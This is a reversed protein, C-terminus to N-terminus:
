RGTLLPISRKGIVADLALHSVYGAALGSTLGALFSWMLEFCKLLLASVPDCVVPVFTGEGTEVMPIARCNMANERCQATIAELINKVAVIGGGAAYSHAPGRHWSSTAPELLDPIQGGLFGGYAGGLIEFLRNLPDQEKAQYAAVGAGATLGVLKHTRGDPM